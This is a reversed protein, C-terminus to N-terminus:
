FGLWKKIKIWFSDKKTETIINNDTNISNLNNSDSKVNEVPFIEGFVSSNIWGKTKVGGGGADTTGEIQYWNDKKYKGIISVKSTEAYYRIISCNNSPCKRLATPLKLVGKTMFSEIDEDKIGFDVSANSVTKTTVKNESKPEIANNISTSINTKIVCETNQDNWIYGSYCSCGGTNGGKNKDTEGSYFSNNGFGKQCVSDLINTNNSQSTTTQNQQVQIQSAHNVCIQYSDYLYNIYATASSMNADNGLDKKLQDSYYKKVTKYKSDCASIYQMSNIKACAARFEGLYDKKIEVKVNLPNSESGLDLISSAHLLSIPILFIFVIIIKKM